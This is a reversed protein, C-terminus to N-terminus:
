WQRDKRVRYLFGRHTEYTSDNGQRALELARQLTEDDSQLKTVHETKFDILLTVLPTLGKTSKAQNKTQVAQATQKIPQPISVDRAGPVNRIVLDYIPNMCVATTLGSFYPTEVYIKAVPTYRVTGDILICREKLGTLKDDSVLARRVVVTACGTERLVNVPKGKLSGEAVPMRYSKDSSQCADAIVPDHLGCEQCIAIMCAAQCHHTSNPVVMCEPCYNKNHPPV